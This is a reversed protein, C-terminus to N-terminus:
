KEAAVSSPDIVIRGAAIDVTPVNVENFAIM